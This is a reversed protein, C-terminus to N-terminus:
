LVNRAKSFCMAHGRSLAVSDYWDLNPGSGQSRGAVAETRARRPLEPTFLMATAVGPKMVSPSSVSSSIPIRPLFVNRSAPPFVNM